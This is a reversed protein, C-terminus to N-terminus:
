REMRSDDHGHGGNEGAEDDDLPRHALEHGDDGYGDDDGLTAADLREEATIRDRIDIIRAGPFANLVERVTEHEALERILRERNTVAQDALSPEGPSQSLAILWRRGTLRLLAESLRGVLDGPLHPDLRLELRDKQFAVLHAGQHLAAALLREGHRNLLRVLDAFDRPESGRAEPREPRRDAPPPSRVPSRPGATPPSPQLPAVRALPPTPLPSRAPAAPTAARPGDGADEAGDLRRALEGPTPLNGMAALRLLVMEAATAAHPAGRVEDVGKLLVQWARALVALDLREALRRGAAVTEPTGAFISTADRDVELCSVWHAIELLDEIVAVPEAGLAFLERFGDLVGGADGGMVREFLDLLKQRDGFGLM